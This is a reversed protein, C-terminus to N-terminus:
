LFTDIALGGSYGLIPFPSKMIDYVDNMNNVAVLGRTYYVHGLIVWGASM